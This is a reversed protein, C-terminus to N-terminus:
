DDYGQQLHCTNESIAPDVNTDGARPFTEVVVPPMTQVSLENGALASPTPASILLGFLLSTLWRM